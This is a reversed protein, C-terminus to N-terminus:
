STTPTATDWARNSPLPETLTHVLSSLVHPTTAAFALVVTHALPPSSSISINFLPPPPPPPPPPPLGRVVVVPPYRLILSLYTANSPTRALSRVLSARSVTCSVLPRTTTTSSDSTSLCRLQWRAHTFHPEEPPFHDPLSSLYIHRQQPSHRACSVPRRSEVVHPHTSTYSPTFPTTLSTTQHHPLHGDESRVRM